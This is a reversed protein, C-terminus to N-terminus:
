TMRSSASANVVPARRDSNRSRHDNPDANPVFPRNDIYLKDVKLVVKKDQRKAEKLHPILRKRRENVERPFQENVGYTKGKLMRPAAKRVMEKDKFSGFKAVIPRHKGPIPKGMRHVREFKIEDTIGMEESLFHKIVEEPNRRRIRPYVM